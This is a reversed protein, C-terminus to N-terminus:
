PTLSSNRQSSGNRKREMFFKFGCVQLSISISIKCVFSWQLIQKYVYNGFISTDTNLSTCEFLQKIQIERVKLKM